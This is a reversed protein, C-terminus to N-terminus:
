DAEEKEPKAGHCLFSYTASKRNFELTVTGPMGM